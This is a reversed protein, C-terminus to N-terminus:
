VKVSHPKGASHSVRKWRQGDRLEHTVPNEYRQESYENAFNAYTQFPYM